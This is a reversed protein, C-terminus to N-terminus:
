THIEQEKKEQAKVIQKTYIRRIDDLLDNQSKIRKSQVDYDSKEKTLQGQVIDVNTKCEEEMKHCNELEAEMIEELTWVKEVYSNATASELQLEKIENELALRYELTADILDLQMQQYKKVWEDLKQRIAQILQRMKRTTEDDLPAVDIPEPFKVPLDATNNQVLDERQFNKSPDGSFDIEDDDDQVKNTNQLQITVVDELEQLLGKEEQSLSSKMPKALQILTPLALFTARPKTEGPRGLLNEVIELTKLTEKANKLFDLFLANSQCQRSAMKALLGLIENIRRDHLIIVDEHENITANLREVKTKLSSCKQIQLNYTNLLKVVVKKLADNQNNTFTTLSHLGTSTATQLNNLMELIQDLSLTQAPPLQGLITFMFNDELNISKIANVIASWWGFFVLLWILKM